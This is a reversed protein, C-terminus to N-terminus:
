SQKSSRRKCKDGHWRNFNALSINKKCHPCELKPLLKGRNPSIKGYMPNNAGSLKKKSEESWKWQGTIGKNPHQKGYMPNNSGSVDAHNDSMRQRTETNHKKNYFPNNEGSMNISHQPRKQGKNKEVRKQITEQSQVLGSVGEGGDTLNRLIGNGLDIRGYQAILKTELLHAEQESLEKALIQIKSKDEPLLNAGNSRKHDQWARQEKGKGIYYPTMDERLYQYVYYINM